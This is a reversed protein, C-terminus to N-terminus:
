RCPEAAHILRVVPRAPRQRPGSFAIGLIAVSVMAVVCAWVPVAWDLSFIGPLAANAFTMPDVFGM